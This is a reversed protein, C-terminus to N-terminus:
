VFKYDIYDLKEHDIIIRIRKNLDLAEKCIRGGEDSGYAYALAYVDKEEHPYKKIYQEM